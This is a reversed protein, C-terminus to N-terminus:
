EERHDASPSETMQRVAIGRGNQISPIPVPQRDIKDFAARSWQSHLRKKLARMASPCSLGTEENVLLLQPLLSEGYRASSNDLVLLENTPVGIHREAERVRNPLPEERIGGVLTTGVVRPRISAPLLQLCAEVTLYYTWWTNLVVTADPCDEFANELAPAYEFATHSPWLLEPSHRYRYQLHNPHLVGDFNLYILM